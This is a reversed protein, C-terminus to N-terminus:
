SKLLLPTITGFGEHGVISVPISPLPEGISSWVSQLWKAVCDVLVDNVSFDTSEPDLLPVPPSLGEPTHVVNVIGARDRIAKNLVYLDPGDLVGQIAFTGEGDQDPFVEFTLSKAKAPLESILARIRITAAESQQHLVRSLEVQYEQEQM